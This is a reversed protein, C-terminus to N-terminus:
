TNPSIRLVRVTASPNRTQRAHLVYRDNGGGLAIRYPHRRRRGVTPFRYHAVAM